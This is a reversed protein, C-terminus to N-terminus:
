SLKDVSGHMVDFCDDGGKGYVAVFSQEIAINKM